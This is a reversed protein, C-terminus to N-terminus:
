TKGELQQYKAWIKSVYTSCEAYGAPDVIKLAADIAPWNLPLSQKRAAAIAKCCHGIGGNYAALLSKFYLDSDKILAGFVLKSGKKYVLSGSCLIKGMQSLYQIGATLNRDPCLREDQLKFQPAKVPFVKMGLDQATPLMLQMLGVAGCPSIADPIWNSERWIIARIFNPPLKKLACQEQLTIEWQERSM